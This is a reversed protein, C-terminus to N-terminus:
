GARLADVLSGADFAGAVRRGNAFFAPTGDVGAALGTQEDHAVRAAHTGERLEREVRGADLGLREATRVLDAVALHGRAAYFADHAEWFAGQAAAAESAEAAARAHPHLADIPFHRFAFRLGDGLRTRVREVIGQSATCFPCEFDGYMVLELTAGPAGRVHDGAHLPETLQDPV